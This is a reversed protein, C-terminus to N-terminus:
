PARLRRGAPHRGVAVRASDRPRSRRSSPHGEIRVQRSPPTNASVPTGGPRALQWRRRAGRVDGLEKGDVMLVAKFDEREARSRPPCSCLPRALPPLPRPDSYVGTTVRPTRSAERIQRLRASIPCEYHKPSEGRAMRDAREREALAAHPGGHRIRDAILWRSAWSTPTRARM